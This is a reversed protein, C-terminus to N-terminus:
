LKSQVVAVASFIVVLMVGVGVLKCNFDNIVTTTAATTTLKKKKFM